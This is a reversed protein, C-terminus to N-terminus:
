ESLISFLRYFLSLSYKFVLYSNCHFYERPFDTFCIPKGQTTLWITEEKQGRCWFHDKGSELFSLPLPFPIGIVLQTCHISTTDSPSGLVCSWNGLQLIRWNSLLIENLHEGPACLRECSPPFVELSVWIPFGLWSHVRTIMGGKGKSHMAM